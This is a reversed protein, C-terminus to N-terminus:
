KKNRDIRDEWGKRIDSVLDESKGEESLRKKLLGLTEKLADEKKIKGFDRLIKYDIAERIMESSTSGRSESLKEINEIQDERLFISVRKMDNAGKINNTHM